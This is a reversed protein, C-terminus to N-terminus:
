CQLSLIYDRATEEPTLQPDVVYHNNNSRLVLRREKDLLISNILVIHDIRADYLSRASLLKVLIPGIEILLILLIIMKQALEVAENGEKEALSRLAKIRTLFGVQIDKVTLKSSKEKFEKLILTRKQNIEKTEKNLINNIETQQNFSNSAIQIRYEIEKKQKILNNSNENQKKLISQINEDINEIQKNSLKEVSNFRKRLRKIENEIIISTPGYGDKKEKQLEKITTAITQQAKTIENEYREKDKFLLRKEKEQATRAENYEKILQKKDLKLSSIRKNSMNELTEIQSNAEQTLREREQKLTSIQKNVMTKMVAVKENLEQQKVLKLEEEVEQEFLKLELPISISYGIVIAIFLRPIAPTLEAFFQGIRGISSIHQLSDGRKKMSSTIFRDLNFITWGWLIGGLMGVMMNDLMFYLAYGGSVTALMWTSFIAGGIGFYKNHDTPIRELIPIVAGSCWWLFYTFANIKITKRKINANPKVKLPTKNQM